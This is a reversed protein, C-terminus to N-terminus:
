EKKISAVYENHTQELGFQKRSEDAAEILTKQDFGLGLPTLVGNILRVGGCLVTLLHMYIKHKRELDGDYADLYELIKQEYINPLPVFECDKAFSNNVGHRICESPKQGCINM